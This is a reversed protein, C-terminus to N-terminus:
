AAVIVEEVVTQHHESETPIPLNDQRLCEIYGVIAERVMAKAQELTEGETTIGNLAPVHALWGRDTAQEFIVTFRYEAM